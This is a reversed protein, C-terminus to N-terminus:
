AKRNKLFWEKGKRLFVLCLLAMVAGDAKTNLKMSNCARIIQWPLTIEKHNSRMFESSFFAPMPIM